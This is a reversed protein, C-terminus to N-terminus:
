KKNLIIILLILAIPVFAYIWNDKLILYCAPLVMGTLIIGLIIVDSYKQLGEPTNIIRTFAASLIEKPNKIIDGTSNPFNKSSFSDFQEIKDVATTTSQGGVAYVGSNNMVASFGRPTLDHSKMNIIEELDLAKNTLRYKKNTAIGIKELYGKEQLSNVIHSASAVGGLTLKEVIGRLSIDPNLHIERLTRQENITIM